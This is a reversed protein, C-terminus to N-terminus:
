EVSTAQVRSPNNIGYWLRALQWAALLTLVLLLLFYIQIRWVGSGFIPSGPHMVQDTTQLVYVLIVVYVLNLASAWAPNELLTIGIQLILGGIAFIMAVRWRPESLFLGNWNTQMAWLSLPLYTIWFVLGTRGLALSWYHAAKRRTILGVLGVAAAAIICILAAWVWAGHLYVVRVNTGLSKEAPGLATVVIIALLNLGVWLIPSKM